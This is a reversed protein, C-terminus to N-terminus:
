SPGIRAAWAAIEARRGAGLKALIHEVHASVTKPSLVLRAAIERNTLGDAVLTAVAYERASLPYWPQALRSPSSLLAEAAAVLTTAGVDTASTKVALALATTIASLGEGRSRATCRAEDLSAWSGEWFRRLESWGVRAAQLSEHAADLDGADLQLLGRAHDIAPLTGRIARRALVKEVRRIWDDAGDVDHKALRARTGTVLFPFLYAADAVEDSLEFGRECLATADDFDGRLLATEALGWLPPSIRQLEAMSEGLALAEGLLETAGAWDARGMALYGLVYQATIRTTIGGRGDALAQEANREAVLWYGCAWQVHALHAAMYSRHNWLEVSEAYSIGTPLWKEARDYEVLVSASTGGMRYSRAAEAEHLLGVSRSVASDLMAWGDDSQGAFLLVSGLTAATNLAAEEDGVAQSLVRSQEGYEIAEDLRRDLMYAAALASLLQARVSEGDAIGEISELAGKLRGVRDALGVGLLHSVAVLPPVVAAAALRNGAASWVQHASTFADAAADNEDVAAAERGLAALLAAHEDPALDPPLNNIARRYLGLAERHASLATAEHAGLLAYRYAATRLQASDFQASVFVHRYGRDVAVLAVREHLERRRPLPTDAYLADRILAHRFDFTVADSGAQVFYMAQLERLCRDVEVAPLQVVETLLDFDFSRGIVAAASAIDRGAADLTRARVLVADALTDPVRVDTADGVREHARASLLEEVHLPIGDSREYIATVLQSPAPRGLVASTLTATQDRTLRQLRIEEALRQSLLRARSERMPTSVFLEDSRYAGVMLTSRGALRGAIRGIVELSLQDAWHLDELVVLLRRDADLESIADTLDHVLLRRQRHLDGESVLPDRLRESIARGVSQARPDNARKLDDALDLLVGGSIEADGPFAAARIVAFGSREARLSISTLLRTKGLGAEGAVFLLQGRGEAVEALRRDALALLEDRGVLVPSAVVGHEPM